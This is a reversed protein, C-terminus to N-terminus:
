AVPMCGPWPKASPRARTLTDPMAAPRTRACATATTTSMRKTGAPSIAYSAAFPRVRGPGRDAQLLYAPPAGPNPLQSSRTEEDWTFHSDWISSPTRKRPVRSCPMCFTASAAAGTCPRCQRSRRSRPRAIRRRACQRGVGPRRPSRRHARAGVRCRQPSFSTAGLRKTASPRPPVAATEAGM